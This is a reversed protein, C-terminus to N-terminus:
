HTSRNPHRNFYNVIVDLLQEATSNDPQMTVTLGAEEIASATTPGIAAIVSQAAQITRVAPDPLIELFFRFASPSFFTLCDIKGHRLQDAM